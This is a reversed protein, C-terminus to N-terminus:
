YAFYVTWPSELLNKKDISLPNNIYLKNSDFRERLSYKEVKSAEYIEGDYSLMIQTYINRGLIEGVLTLLEKASVFKLGSFDYELIKTVSTDEKIGATSWAGEDGFTYQVPVIFRDGSTSNETGLLLYAGDNTTFGGMLIAQVLGDDGGPPYPIGINWPEGGLLSRRLESEKPIVKNYFDSFVQDPALILNDIDKNTEFMEKLKRLDEVAMASELALTPIPIETATATPEPTLTLEATALDQATPTIVNNATTPVPTQVIVGCSSLVSALIILVFLRGGFPITSNRKSQTHTKM